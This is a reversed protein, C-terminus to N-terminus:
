HRAFNSKSGWVNGGCPFTFHNTIGIHVFTAESFKWESSNAHHHLRPLVARTLYRLEGIDGVDKGKLITAFLHAYGKIMRMALNICVGKNGWAGSLHEFCGFCVMCFGTASQHCIDDSAFNLILNADHSLIFMPNCINWIGRAIGKLNM